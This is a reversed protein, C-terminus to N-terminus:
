GIHHSIEATLRIVDPILQFVAAPCVQSPQEQSSGKLQFVWGVDPDYRRSAPCVFPCLRLFSKSKAQKGECKSSLEDIGHSLCGKALTLVQKEPIGVCVSPCCSELIRQVASTAAEHVSCISNKAKGDPSLWHQALWVM